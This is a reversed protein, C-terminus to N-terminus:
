VGTLLVSYMFMVSSIGILLFPLEFVVMRVSSLGFAM